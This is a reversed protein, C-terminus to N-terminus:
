HEWFYEKFRSYALETLNRLGNELDVKFRSWIMTLIEVIEISKLKVTAQSNDYTLKM